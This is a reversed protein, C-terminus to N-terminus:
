KEKLTTKHIQAMWNSYLECFTCNVDQRIELATVSSSDLYECYLFTRQM